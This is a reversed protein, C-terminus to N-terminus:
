NSKVMKNATPVATGNNKLVQKNNEETCTIKTLDATGAKIAETKEAESCVAVAFKKNTNDLIYYYDYDTTDATVDLGANKLILEAAAADEPLTSEATSAMNAMILQQAQAVFTKRKADRAKAFYSSFQAVGITALIGIIVIVVLLEILTFGKKTMNKM